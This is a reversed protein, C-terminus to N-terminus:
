SGLLASVHGAESAAILALTRAVQADPAAVCDNLRQVSAAKEANALDAIAQQSTSSTTSPTAAGQGTEHAGGLAALHARHEDRIPGLQAQLQPFLAIASDYQAILRAEDEASASSAQSLSSSSSSTPSSCAAVAVLPLALAVRRTLALPMWPPTAAVGSTSQSQM